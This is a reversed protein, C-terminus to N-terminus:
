KKRKNYYIRRELIVIKLFINQSIIKVTEAQNRMFSCTILSINENSLNILITGAGFKFLIEKISGKENIQNVMRAVNNSFM